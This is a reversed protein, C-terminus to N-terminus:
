IEVTDLVHFKTNDLFITLKTPTIIDCLNM